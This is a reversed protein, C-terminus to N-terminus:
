PWSPGPAAAMAPLIGSAGLVPAAKALNTTFLGAADLDLARRLCDAGIPSATRRSGATCAPPATTTIGGHIRETRM